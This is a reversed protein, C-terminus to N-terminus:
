LSTVLALAMKRQYTIDKKSPLRWGHALDSNQGTGIHNSCLSGYFNLGYQQMEAREPNDQTLAIINRYSDM